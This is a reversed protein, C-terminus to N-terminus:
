VLWGRIIYGLISLFATILFGIIWKMNSITTELTVVRSRIDELVEEYDELEESTKDYLDRLNQLTTIVEGRWRSLELQHDLDFKDSDEKDM